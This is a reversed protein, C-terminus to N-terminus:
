LAVIQDAYPGAVAALAEDAGDLVVILEGPDEARISQLCRRFLAEPEHFVPVIVSTSLLGPDADWPRYRGAALLKAAWLLWVYAFLVLYPTLGAGHLANWGDRVFTFVSVM